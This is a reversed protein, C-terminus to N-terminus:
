FYKRNEVNIEKIRSSPFVTEDGYVSVVIAFEGEYRISTQYSGGPRTEDPFERVTGDTFHITIRSM